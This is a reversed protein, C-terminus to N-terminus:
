ILEKYTGPKVHIFVPNTSLVPLVAMISGARKSSGSGMPPVILNTQATLHVAGFFLAVLGAIWRLEIMSKM